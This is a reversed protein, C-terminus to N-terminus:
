GSVSFRKRFTGDSPMLVAAQDAATKKNNVLSGPLTRSDDTGNFPVFAVFYSDKNCGADLKCKDALYRGSLPLSGMAEAGARRSGLQIFRLVFQVVYWIAIAAVWASAIDIMVGFPVFYNVAGLFEGLGSFASSLYDALSFSPLLAVIGDIAFNLLGYLTNVILGLFANMEM